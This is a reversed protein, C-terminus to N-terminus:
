KILGLHFRLNVVGARVGVEWDDHVTIFLALPEMAGDESMPCAYAATESSNQIGDMRIAAQGEDSAANAIALIAAVGDFLRGCSTTVPANIKKELMQPLMSSMAGFEDLWPWPRTGPKTIGLAHLCRQAILWPEKVAVDGGPLLIPAFHAVR